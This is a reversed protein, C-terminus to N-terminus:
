RLRNTPDLLEWRMRARLTVDGAADARVRLWGDDTRTLAASGESVAWMPSARVRVFSTGARSFHLRLSATGLDTLSAAGAAIPQAEVVRWVTWHADHWVERLYSPPHRLLAAEAAGGIDPELPSLAVLSVANDDLWRRYAGATLRHYLVDNEGLDVQREWGRALPFSRAVWYAETHTRTFPIELRGRVPEETRLYGLLGRYYALRRGPDDVGWRVATVLPILSWWTALGVAIVVGIRRWRPLTRTALYYLALPLAVLRGLRNLNSGVPNDVLFAAISIVLYWYALDRFGRDHRGTLLLTIACFATIAALTVPRYTFPGGGSDVVAALASGLLAPALLAVRRPGLVRLLALGGFVLFVGALPSALSSLGAAVAAVAAGGAHGSRLAFLAAAAFAVGLLFTTQGIVLCELVCLTVGACFAVGLWRDRPALAAGLAAAATASLVGVASSGV